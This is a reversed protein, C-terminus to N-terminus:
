WIHDWWEREAVCVHPENVMVGNAGIAVGKPALM